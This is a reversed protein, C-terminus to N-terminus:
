EFKKKSGVSPWTQQYWQHEVSKIARDLWKPDVNFVPMIISILPTHQFSNLDKKIKETMLPIQYIYDNKGKMIDITKTVFSRLGRAQVYTVLESLTINAEKKKKHLRLIKTYIKKPHFVHNLISKLM